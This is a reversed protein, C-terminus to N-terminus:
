RQPVGLRGLLNRAAAVQRWWTRPELRVLDDDGMEDHILHYLRDDCEELLRARGPEHALNRLEAPDERTDYLELEQEAIPAQQRGPDFYRAYKWRGDYFGRLFARHRVTPGMSSYADSTFLVERGTDDPVRVLMRAMSGPLSGSVENFTRWRGDEFACRVIEKGYRIMADVGYRHAVDEFYARIEPGPAFRHSWEPNLAFSYSYFHSPVDCAIGPYTNERWTGGLRDAKEYIAFDLGAEELKIASLIGAM